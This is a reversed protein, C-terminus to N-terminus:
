TLCMGVSLFPHCLADLDGIATFTNVVGIKGDSSDFSLLMEM